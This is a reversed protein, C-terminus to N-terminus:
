FLKSAKQECYNKNKSSKQGNFRITDFDPFNGFERALVEAEKV